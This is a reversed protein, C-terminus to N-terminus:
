RGCSRALVTASPMMVWALVLAADPCGGAGGHALRALGRLVRDADRTAGGSGTM